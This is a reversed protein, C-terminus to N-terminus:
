DERRCRRPRSHECGLSPSSISRMRKQLQAFCDRRGRSNQSSSRWTKASPSADRGKRASRSGGMTWRACSWRLRWAACSPPKQSMSKRALLFSRRVKEGGM